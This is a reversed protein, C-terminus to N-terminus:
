KENKLVLSEDKMGNRMLEKSTQELRSVSPILLIKKDTYQKGGKKDFRQRHRTMRSDKANHGIRDFQSDDFFDVHGDAHVGNGNTIYLKQM